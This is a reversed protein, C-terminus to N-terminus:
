HRCDVVTSQQVSSSPRKPRRSQPKVAKYIDPPALLQQPNGEGLSLGTNVENTLRLARAM